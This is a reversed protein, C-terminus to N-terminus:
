SRRTRRPLRPRDHAAAERGRERQRGRRRRGHRLRRAALARVPRRLHRARGRPDAGRDRRPQRVRHERPDHRRVAVHGPAGHGHELAPRPPADELHRHRRAHDRRRRDRLVAHDPQRADDQGRRDSRRDRRDPGARRRALPGRHAPAEPRLLVLRPRVRDPGAPRPGRAPGPRGRDGRARRAARVGARGVRHRVADRQDDVRAAHAAPHVPPLVPHVGPHRRDDAPGVVGAARRRARDRRLEPQRPVDDGAPDDRLHVARRLQGRLAGREQRQVEARRGEPPRVGQRALSRHVGRRGARQAHRHPAVPRRVEDQVAEHHVADHLDLRPDHRARRAVLLPSITIMMILVGVLTLTSTLLQSLTQQLSQALNDIDNTVRSLMDGRPQRDVYRLPMRNLKDEVDSRLRFMARQVVGALLGARRSRWCRPRRRLARARRAPHQAAERLRHRGRQHRRRRHHQHRERPDEARDRAAHRERGRPDARARRRLGGPRLRAALRRTSNKFDKSRELPMGPPVGGARCAVAACRRPRSSRSKPEDPPRRARDDSM